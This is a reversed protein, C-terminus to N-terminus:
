RSEDAATRSENAGTHGENRVTNWEYEFGKSLVSFFLLAETILQLTAINHFL